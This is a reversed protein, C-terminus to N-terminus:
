AMRVKSEESDEAVPMLEQDGEMSVKSTRFDEKELGMTKTLLLLAIVIAPTLFLIASGLFLWLLNLPQVVGGCSAFVVHSLANYVHRCPGLVGMIQRTSKAMLAPSKEYSRRVIIQDYLKDAEQIWFSKNYVFKGLRDIAPLMPFVVESLNMYKHVQKFAMREKQVASKIKALESQVSAWTTNLSHLQGYLEIMDDNGPIAEKCARLLARFRFTVNSVDHKMLPKALEDVYATYNSKVIFKDAMGLLDAMDKKMTPRLFDDPNAEEFGEHMLQRGLKLFRATMKPKSVKTLDMGEIGHIALMISKNARCTTWVGDFIDRPRPMPMSSDNGALGEITAWNRDLFGNIAKDLILESNNTGERPREELYRCVETQTYGGILFTACTILVALALTMMLCYFLVKSSNRVRRTLDGPFCFHHICIVACLVGIVLLLLLVVIYVANRMGEYKAMKSHVDGNFLQTLNELKASADQLKLELDDWQKRTM